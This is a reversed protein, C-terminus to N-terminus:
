ADSRLRTRSYAWVPLHVVVVLLHAVLVAYRCARAQWAWALLLVQLAYKYLLM